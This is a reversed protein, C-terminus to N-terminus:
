HAYVIDTRHMSAGPIQRSFQPSASFPDAIPTTLTDPPRM